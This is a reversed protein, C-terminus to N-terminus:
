RILIIDGKVFNDGCVSNSKLFYYYTDSPAEEGNFLGDWCAQPDKSEFVKQGWRNYITFYFERPQVNHIPRLCDNLGDGNPTFANPVMTFEAYASYFQVTISDTDYCGGVNGTVYFTTTQTPTAIPHDSSADNLLGAPTWSYQDAGYAQLTTTKLGCLIDNSKSVAIDIPPITSLITTASGTCGSADTGIVTYTTVGQPYAWVSNGLTTNVYASPAWTYNTAGTGILQASDGACLQPSNNIIGVPLNLFVFVNVTSTNTCGQADTGTVIYTTNTTPVFPIGDIKGQSWLYYSAGGGYLTTPKGICVSDPVANATVNPSPLVVISQTATATCGNADTGTVTYTASTAPSFPINNQLGGSWTYSSAGVANFVTTSGPCISDPQATTNVTPLPLISISV